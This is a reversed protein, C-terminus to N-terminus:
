GIQLQGYKVRSGAPGIVMILAREVFFGILFIVRELPSFLMGLEPATVHGSRDTDIATLWNWLRLALM